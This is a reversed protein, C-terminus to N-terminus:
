RATMIPFLASEEYAMRRRLRRALLRAESRYHRWEGQIRAPTWRGMHASLDEDLARDLGRYLTDGRLSAKVGPYAAREVALHTALERVLSWRLRSFEMDAPARDGDLYDDLQTLTARVRDHDDMLRDTLPRPSTDM